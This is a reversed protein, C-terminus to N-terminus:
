PHIMCHPFSVKVPVFEITRMELPATKLLSKLQDKDLGEADKEDFNTGFLKLKASLDTLQKSTQIRTFARKWVGKYKSNTVPTNRIIRKRRASSSLYESDSDFNEETPM